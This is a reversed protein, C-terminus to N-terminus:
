KQLSSQAQYELHAVLEAPLKLASAINQLHKKEDLQDPNIALRSILYLQAAQEENKTESVLETVNIPQTLTDLILAKDNAPLKLKDIEAFINTQETSDIHGDSKAAMIMGKILTIQFPKGTSSTATEEILKSNTDRIEQQSISAQETPLKGAQYNQYAKHAMAGLVAAGGYTIASSAINGVKTNTLLLTLLGGAIAGGALHGLGGQTSQQAITKVRDALGTENSNSRAQNGPQPKRSHLRPWTQYLM